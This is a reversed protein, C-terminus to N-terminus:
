GIEGCLTAKKEKQHEQRLCGSSVYLFLNMPDRGAHNDDDQSPIIMMKLLKEMLNSFRIEGYIQEIM